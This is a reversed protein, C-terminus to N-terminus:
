GNPDYNLIPALWKEAVPLDLGKRRAYDEAQDREIRGVGFYLSEPHSFYLGSVSAGPTMAFSETLAMGAAQEAGLLRFLTTKETHDPQAPYGAAPRIGQYKEDILAAPALAEEPAFAWFERRVREHLHEAFAEALRDALAKVMISSYDDHAAEFSAAIEDEGHGATVAFGGLYDPLGTEKPAVFDSLAFNPRGGEKAMQQRLTHFRALPEGRAEDEYVEVDDGVANAPWLGVVGHATFWKEDIIKRLMKQADAYLSRASEGVIDDDLIQPFRGALEWSAFFPTWDIYPELAALDYDRLTRVGTFTPAPP